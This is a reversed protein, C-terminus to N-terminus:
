SELTPEFFSFQADYCAFDGLTGTGEPAETCGGGFTSVQEAFLGEQVPGHDRVVLHVDAGLPNTLGPGAVVVGSNDGPAKYTGFNGKGDPGVIHGGGDMVTGEIAPDGDFIILDGEGCRLGGVGNTCLEPNNFVVVWMTVAHGPQLGSTDLTASFGDGYARYSATAGPISQGEWATGEFWVVDSSSARTTSATDADQAAVGPALAAMALVVSFSIAATRRM